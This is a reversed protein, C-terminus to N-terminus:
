AVAACTMEITINTPSQRNRYRSERRAFAYRGRDDLRGRDGRPGRGASTAGPARDARYGSIVAASSARVPPRGLVPVSAVWGRHTGPGM